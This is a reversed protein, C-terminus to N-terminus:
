RSMQGTIMPPPLGASGRSTRASSSNTSSRRHVSPTTYRRWRLGTQAVWVTPESSPRYGTASLRRRGVGLRAADGADSEELRASKRGNRSRTTCCSWATEFSTGEVLKLDQWDEFIRTGKGRSAPCILMRVEDVVGAELLSHM